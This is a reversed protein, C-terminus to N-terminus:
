PKGRQLLARQVLEAAEVLRHSTTFLLRGPVFVFRRQQVCRLLSLGPYQALWAPPGGEDGDSAIVLADPQWALLTEVDLKRFPGVGREQAEARAGAATLMAAFLSGRGYTHLGGDLNVVRWASVATARAALAALRQEMAAVLAEAAPACHGLRGLRRVNAAIDAFSGAEGTVVVPVGAAGLLALTEPKTFPDCLVLDPRQALLQEPEAGVLPLGVAEATVLSYRPDAALLHVGALRERPAIALMVESAFVSAALIREPAVAPVWDAAAWAPRERCGAAAALGFAFCCAVVGRRM